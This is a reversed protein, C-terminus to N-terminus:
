KKRKPSFVVAFSVITASLITFSYLIVYGWLQEFTVLEKVTKNFFYVSFVVVVIWFVLFLLKILYVM